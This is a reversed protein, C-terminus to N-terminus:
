HTAHYQTRRKQAAFGAYWAQQAAYNDDTYPNATVALGSRAAGEGREFPTPEKHSVGGPFLGHEMKGKM